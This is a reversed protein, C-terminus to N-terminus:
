PNRACFFPARTARGKDLALAPGQARTDKSWNGCSRFANYPAIL